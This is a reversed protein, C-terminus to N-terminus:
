LHRLPWHLCKLTMGGTYMPRREELIAVRFALKRKFVTPVSLNTVVQGTGQM